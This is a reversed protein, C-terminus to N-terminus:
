IKLGLWGRWIMNVAYLAAGYVPFLCQLRYKDLMVYVARAYRMHFPNRLRFGQKKAHVEEYSFLGFNEYHHRRLGLYLKMEKGSMTCLMKMHIRAFLDKFDDAEYCCGDFISEIECIMKFIQEQTDKILTYEMNQEEELCVMNENASKSKYKKVAAHSGALIKEWFQFDVDWVSANESEFPVKGYLVGRKRNRGNLNGSERLGLYFGEVEVKGKFYRFLNDQITGKWGVDALYLGDTIFDIGFSGCYEALNDRQERRNKEYLEKFLPTHFLAETEKSHLLDDLRREMDFGYTERILRAQRESFGISRLFQNLSISQYQRVLTAFTEEKLELLGPAFTAVRSCLFYHTSLRNEMGHRNQSLYDFVRKLFEGERSLFFLNGIEKENALKYLTDSFLYLGYAYGTFSGRNKRYLASIEKKVSHYTVNRERKRNKCFVAHFGKREPIIIDSKRNDGVMVFSQPSFCFRQQLDDFITGNRKCKKLDCSVFVDQIYQDLSFRKLFVMLDEKGMYFDSIIFIKKNQGYLKKLIDANKRDLYQYEMELEIELQKIEQIRNYLAKDHDSNYYLSYRKIMEQILEPYSYEGNENKKELYEESAKRIKYFEKATIHLGYKRCVRKAWIQKITEPHCSRHLLTDFCDFGIYEAESLLKLDKKRM